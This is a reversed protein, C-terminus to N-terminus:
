NAPKVDYKELIICSTNPTCTTAVLLIVNSLLERMGSHIVSTRVTMGVMFTSGSAHTFAGVRRRYLVMAKVCNLM